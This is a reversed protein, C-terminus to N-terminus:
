TQHSWRNGSSIKELDLEIILSKNSGNVKLMYMHTHTKYKKFYFNILQWLSSSSPLCSMVSFNRLNESIEHYCDDGVTEIVISSSSSRLIMGVKITMGTCIYLITMISLTGHFESRARGLGALFSDGPGRGRADDAKPLWENRAM